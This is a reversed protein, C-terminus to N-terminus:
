LSEWVGALTARRREKHHDGRDRRALDEFQLQEHRQPKTASGEAMAEGKASRWAREAGREMQQKASPM